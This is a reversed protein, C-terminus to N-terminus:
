NSDCSEVNLAADYDWGSKEVNNVCFTFATGRRIRDSYATAWGDSGTTVSDSDSASGSWKGTVTASAVAAGNKDVIKIRARGYRYSGSSLRVVDIAAVHMSPIVKVTISDTASLGGSDTVRATITHTGVSLAKPSTFAGDISSSWQISGSIDGDEPDSAMAVFTIPGADQSFTSNNAPTGIFITPAVNVHATIIVTIADTASLGGSDTVRATITHTGVSLAKPSTFAGDISSSWQISGSIDGDEPDSAMAVFTIPGADQSFTSNNAPTSITVVPPVNTGPTVTITISKTVTLGGSDTISATLIHTGASLLVPSTIDGDLSSTWIVTSGIDGDEFDIAQATLLIPGDDQSFISGDAPTIIGLMPFENLDLYNDTTSALPYQDVIFTVYSYGPNRYPDDTVGNGDSDTLNHNSYYNGLYGTYYTGNYAYSIPTPSYRTRPFDDTTYNCYLNNIFNNLYITNTTAGWMGYNNSSITNGRFVNTHSANLEVGRDNNSSINDFVRNTGGGSIYIGYTGETCTNGSLLNNFSMSLDLGYGNNLCTNRSMTNANSDYIFIGEGNDNIANDTIVNHDSGNLWIAINGSALQNGSITNDPGAYNLKINVANGICSNTTVTTNAASSLLIGQTNNMCSNNSVVHGTTTHVYIGLYNMHTADYGCRNETLISNGVDGYIYIGAKGGATAGYISFGRITVNDAAITIVHNSPDAAAVTTIENGHESAIILQKNVTINETYTGDRVLLTDGDVTTAVNIADQITTYDGNGTADVILTAGFATSSGLFLLIAVIQFLFISRKLKGM